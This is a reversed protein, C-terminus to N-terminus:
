PSACGSRDTATGTPISSTPSAIRAPRSPRACGGACWRRPGRWYSACRMRWCRAGFRAVIEEMRRVGLAVSAMLASTDGRSQAPYRSNRHFIELAAENLVGATVLRTPPM